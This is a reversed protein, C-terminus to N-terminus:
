EKVKYLWAGLGPYSPNIQRVRNWAYRASDFRALNYYTGGLYFWLDANAPDCQTGRKMEYVSRSYDGHQGYRTGEYLFIQGLTHYSAARQTWGPFLRVVKDWYYKASDPLILKCYVVGLNMYGTVDLSDISVAKLLYHLGKRAISDSGSTDRLSECYNIWQAGANDNAKVSNPVKLVDGTFLTFNNKWDKNRTYTEGFALAATVILVAGLARSQMRVPLLGGGYVMATAAIAAFGFSSHFVLREGMTAGIDIIFNSVMLLNLLFFFVPFALINKKRWWRIAMYIIISYAIVTIWVAPSAFNQYPLEAYGFDYALPYPLLLLFLYKGLVIIKSALAQIPTAYLYPANLIDPIASRHPFGLSAFRLALYIAAVGLWPLSARVARAMGEGFHIQFLLPLLFLLTLAYEKALLALFFAALSTALAGTKKTVRYIIGMGLCLMILLLSLMEDSSKISAAVETHIPHIAFLLASVFAIDEGRPLRRPLIIRLFRFVSLVCIMYLLINVAHRMFASEGWLQHEVAFLILSLPRYRGGSLNQNSNYHRYYNEYSDSVLLKGIGRFGMQVYDNQQIVAEDDLTYENALTNAYFCFALLALILYKTRVPFNFLPKDEQM